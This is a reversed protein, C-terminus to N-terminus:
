AKTRGRKAAVTRRRARQKRELRAWFEEHRIGGTKSIRQDAEDLMRMLEANNAMFLREKANECEVPMM